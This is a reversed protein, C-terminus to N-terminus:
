LTTTGPLVQDRCLTFRATEPINNLATEFTVSSYSEAMKDTGCLEFRFLTNEDDMSSLGVAGWDIAQRSIALRLGIRNGRTWYPNLGIKSNSVLRGNASLSLDPVWSDNDGQSWSPVRSSFFDRSPKKGAHLSTKLMIRSHIPTSISLTASKATDVRATIALPLAVVDEKEKWTFGVQAAYDNPSYLGKETQIDITTPPSVLNVKKMDNNRQRRSSLDWRFTTLLRTAGYWVSAFDYNVSLFLSPPILGNGDAHGVRFLPTTEDQIPRFTSTTLGTVHCNFQGSLDLSVHDYSRYKRGRKEDQTNQGEESKLVRSLMTSKVNLNVHAGDCIVTLLTVAWFWVFIVNKLQM